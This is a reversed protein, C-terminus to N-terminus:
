NIKLERLIIVFLIAKLSSYYIFLYIFLPAHYELSPLKPIRFIEKKPQGSGRLVTHLPSKVMVLLESPKKYYSDQYVALM